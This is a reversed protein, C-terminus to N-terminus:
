DLSAGDLLAGDLLAGADPATIQCCVAKSDQKISKDCFRSLHVTM